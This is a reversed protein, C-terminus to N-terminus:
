TGSDADKSLRIIKVEVRSNLANAIEQLRKLSCPKGREIRSIYQSHSDIAEAVEAQTKGQRTRIKKLQKGIDEQLTKM